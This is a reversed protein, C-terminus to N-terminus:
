RLGQKGPTEPVVVRCKFVERHCVEQLDGQQGIRAPIISVKQFIKLIRAQVEPKPLSWSIM